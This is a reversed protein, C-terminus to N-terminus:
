LNPIMHCMRQTDPKKWEFNHRHYENMNDIDTLLENKFKQMLYTIEAYALM